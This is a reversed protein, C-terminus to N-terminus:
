RPLRSRAVVVYEGHVMKLSLLERTIGGKLTKLTGNTSEKYHTPTSDTTVAFGFAGGHQVGRREVSLVRLGGWRIFGGDDYFRKVDRVLSACPLCGSSLAEYERV